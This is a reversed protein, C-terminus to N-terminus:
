NANELQKILIPCIAADERTALTVAIGSAGARGTRGVRHVYETADQPASYQVVFGLRPVDIGRAALSTAVLIGLTGGVFEELAASREAQDRGGHIVGM